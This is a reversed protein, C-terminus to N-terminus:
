PGREEQLQETAEADDFVFDETLAPTDQRRWSLNFDWSPKVSYMRDLYPRYSEPSDEYGTRCVVLWAGSQPTIHTSIPMEIAVSVEQLNAVCLLESLRVGEPLRDVAIKYYLRDLTAVAREFSLYSKETEEDYYGLARFRRSIKKRTFHAERLFAKHLSRQTESPADALFLRVEYFRRKYIAIVIAAVAIAILFLTVVGFTFIYFGFFNM